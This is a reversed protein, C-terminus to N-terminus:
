VALVSEFVRSGSSGSLPLLAWFLNSREDSNGDMLGKLM